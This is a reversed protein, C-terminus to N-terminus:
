EPQEEEEPGKGIVEPAAPVEEEMEETSKAEVLESCSVILLEPDSILTLNDPLKIDKAHYSEGISLDKVSVVINEPIDTVLCEIEIRDAYAGIIGGELTGKATGKLELPVEVKVKEALNVRVFDAHIINKGLYDYQIDKLLLTERKDGAKVDFVRNGHHLAAVFDRLNVSIAVPEQKHGYVVAPIKGESRLKEAFKSGKRERLEAELIMTDTM